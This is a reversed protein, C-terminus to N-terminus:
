NKKDQDGLGHVFERKAQFQTCWLILEPTKARICGWFSTGSMDPITEQVFLIPKIWSKNPESTPRGPHPGLVRRM